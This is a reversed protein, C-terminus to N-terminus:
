KLSIEFETIEKGFSMKKEVYSLTAGKFGKMIDKDAKLAELIKDASTSGSAADFISGKITMVPSWDARTDYAFSISEVWAMPSILRSMSVLKQALFRKRSLLDGVFLASEIVSKKHLEVNAKSSSPNVVGYDEYDKKLNTKLSTEINMGLFVMHLAIILGLGALFKLFVFKIGWMDNRTVEAPAINLSPKKLSDLVLMLLPLYKDDKSPGTEAFFPFRHRELPVNLEKSIREEDKSPSFGSIYIKKVDGGAEKRLYNMSKMIEEEIHPWVVGLAPYADKDDGKWAPIINPPVIIERFFSPHKRSIGCLIIKRHPEYHILMCVEDTGPNNLSVLKSLLLPVPEIVAPLIHKRRFYSVLENINKTEAAALVIERFNPVRQYTKFGYTLTDIPCPLHQQAAFVVAQALEGHPIERITFRRLILQDNRVNVAVRYPTQDGSSFVRDLIGDIGRDPGSGLPFRQLMTLVIGGPSLRAEAIDMFDAGIYVATGDFFIKRIERVIAM